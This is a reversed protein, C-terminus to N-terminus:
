VTRTKARHQTPDRPRHDNLLELAPKPKLAESVIRLAQTVSRVVHVSHGSRRLWQHYAQQKDTVAGEVTKTEMWVTRANPLVVLLDPTGAEANHIARAQPTGRNIITVGSNIRVLKIHPLQKLQKRIERILVSETGAPAPTM